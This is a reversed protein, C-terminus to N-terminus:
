IRFSHYKMLVGYFGAIVPRGRMHNDPAAVPDIGMM